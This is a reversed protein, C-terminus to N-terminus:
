MCKSIPELPFVCGNQEWFTVDSGIDRRVSKLSSCWKMTERELTLAVERSKLVDPIESVPDCIMVGPRRSPPPTVEGGSM